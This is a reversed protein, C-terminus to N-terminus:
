CHLQHPLLYQALRPHQSHRGRKTAANDALAGAAVLEVATGAIDFIAQGVAVIDNAVDFSHPQSENVAFM